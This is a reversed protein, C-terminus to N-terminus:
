RGSQCTYELPCARCDLPLQHAIVEARRARLRDAEATEGMKRADRELQTLRSVEARLRRQEPTLDGAQRRAEDRRAIGALVAARQDPDEIADRARWSSGPALDPQYPKGDPGIRYGGRGRTM